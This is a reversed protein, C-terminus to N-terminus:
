RYYTVGDDCQWGIKDPIYTTTIDSGGRGGNGTSFGTVTNGSIRSVVKCNHKERFVAWEKHDQIIGYIMLPFFAVLFVILLLIFRDDKDALMNRITGLM